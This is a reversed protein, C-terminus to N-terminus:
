PVCEGMVAPGLEAVLGLNGGVGFGGQRLNALAADNDGAATRDLIVITVRRAVSGLEFVLGNRLAGLTFEEAGTLVRRFAFRSRKLKRDRIALERLRNARCGHVCRCDEGGAHDVPNARFRRFRLGYFPAAITTIGLWAPM